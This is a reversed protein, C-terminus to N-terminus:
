AAVRQAAAQAVPRRGADRLSALLATRREAVEALHRAKVPGFGRVHEPLSALDVAIAISEPSLRDLAEELTAFYDEILRREDRRERAYGFPDLATGRLRKFPALIRMAALMWPGYPRKRPEGTAPDAFSWVPPALHLRIRYDGEFQRRIRALFEGDTYLRAVEYEDKYAMVKFLYRAVATV